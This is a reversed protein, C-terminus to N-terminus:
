GVEAQQRNLSALLQGQTVQQGATVYLHSLTGSTNFNVDEQTVPQLTGDGSVTSQVVGKEATIIRQTTVQAQSPPGVLAIGVGIVALCALILVLRTWTPTTHTPKNM